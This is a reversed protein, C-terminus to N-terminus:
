RGSFGRERYGAAKWPVAKDYLLYFQLGREIYVNKRNRPQNGLSILTQAWWWRTGRRGSSSNLRQSIEAGNLLSPLFNLEWLNWLFPSLGILSGLSLHPPTPAWGKSSVRSAVRSPSTRFAGNMSFQKLHLECSLLCLHMWALGYSVAWPVAQKWCTERALFILRCFCPGPLCLRELLAQIPLLLLPVLSAHHLTYKQVVSSRLGWSSLSRTQVAAHPLPFPLSYSWPHVALPAPLLCVAYVGWLLGPGTIWGVGVVTSKAVCPPDAFASAALARRHAHRLAAKRSGLQMFYPTCLSQPHGAAEAGGCRCCLTNGACWRKRGNLMPFANGQVPAQCGAATALSRAAEGAWSRPWSSVNRKSSFALGGGPRAKWPLVPCGHHPSTCPGAGAATGGRHGLCQGSSCTVQFTVGRHRVFHKQSGLLGRCPVARTSRRWTAM